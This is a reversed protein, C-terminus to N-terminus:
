KLFTIAKYIKGAKALPSKISQERGSEELCRLLSAKDWNRCQSLIYAATRAVAYSSGTPYVSAEPAKVVFDLGNQEFVGTDLQGQVAGKQGKTQYPIYSALLIKRVSKSAQPWLFNPNQITEDKAGAALLFVGQFNKVGQELLSHDPGYFASAMIIVDPPAKMLKGLMDEWDKFTYTGEDNFIKYPHIEMVLDIPYRKALEQTFIKLVHHGHAWREKPVNKHTCLPGQATTPALIIKAKLPGPISINAPCFETDIIAIRRTAASTALTPSCLFLVLLSFPTLVRM